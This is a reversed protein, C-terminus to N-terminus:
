LGASYKSIDRLRKEVMYRGDSAVMAKEPGDALARIERTIDLIEGCQSLWM